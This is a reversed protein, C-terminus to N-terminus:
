REQGWINPRVNVECRCFSCIKPFIFSALYSILCRQFSIVERNIKIMGKKKAAAAQAASMHPHGGVMLHQYPNTGYPNEAANGLHIRRHLSDQSSAASSMPSPTSHSSDEM